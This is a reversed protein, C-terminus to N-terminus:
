ELTSIPMGLPQDFLGVPLIIINPLGRSIATITSAVTTLGTQVAVVQRVFEPSLESSTIKTWGANILERQFEEWTLTNMLMGKGGWSWFFNQLGMVSKEIVAYAAGQDKMIWGLLYQGDKAFRITDVKGQVANYIGTFTGGPHVLRLDGTLVSSPVGTTPAFGITGCGSLLMMCAVLLILIDSKKTVFWFLNKM